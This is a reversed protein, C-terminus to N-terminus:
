LYKSLTCIKSRVDSIFSVLEVCAYLNYTISLLRVARVFSPLQLATFFILVFTDATSSFPMAMLSSELVGTDPARYLYKEKGKHSHLYACSFYYNCNMM